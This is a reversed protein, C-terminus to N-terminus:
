NEINFDILKMERNIEHSFTGLNSGFEDTATQEGSYFALTAEELGINKCYLRNQENILGDGSLPSFDVESRINFCGNWSINDVERTTQLFFVNDIYEGSEDCEEYITTYSDHIDWSDNLVIPYKIRNLPPEWFYKCDNDRNLVVSDFQNFSNNNFSFIAM